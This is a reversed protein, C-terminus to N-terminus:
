VDRYFPARKRVPELLSWDTPAVAHGEPFPPRAPLNLSRLVREDRYYCAAVSAEFFGLFATAVSRWQEVLALRDAESWDALGSTDHSSLITALAEVGSRTLEAREALTAAIEAWIRGDAASPREADAPIMWGALVRLWRQGPEDFDTGIVNPQTVPREEM